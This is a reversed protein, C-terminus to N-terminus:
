WLQLAMRFNFSQTPLDERVIPYAVTLDFSLPRRAVRLGVGAGLLTRDLRSAQSYVQGADLFVYPQVERSWDSGAFELTGQRLLFSLDNRTFWGSDGYAVAEAFGRVSNAGGLVVQESSYLPDLSYQGRISARLMAAELQGLWTVGAEFKTFQAAPADPPLGDPDRTAGLATLGISLAGDAFLIGQPFRIQSRPGFRAVTLDQPLLAVDNVYRRTWKRDLMAAVSTKTTSTRDILRDIQLGAVTSRGFLEVESTLRELFESYSGSAGLTWNGLGISGTGAVANTDLSGAYVLAWTDNLSLANDAEIGFNFRREGTRKQGYNDYGVYGRFADQPRDTIAVVTGGPESGPQLEVTARASPVRNLQDLGQELDQLRLTDGPGTPFAAWARRRDADADQNMYLREIRGEIVLLKLVRSTLNQPPIYVRTTVYGRAVYAETLAALLANIETRGLCKGTYRSLISAHAEVDLMTAGELDIRDIDFCVGEDPSPAPRAEPAIEIRGPQRREERELQRQQLEELLRQGPDVQAAVPMAATALAAM